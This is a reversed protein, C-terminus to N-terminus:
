SMEPKAKTHGATFPDYQYGPHNDGFAAIGRVRPKRNQRPAQRVSGYIMTIVIEHNFFHWDRDRGGLGLGVPM